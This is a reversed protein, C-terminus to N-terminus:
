IAKTTHPPPLQLPHNLLLDFARDASEDIWGPTRRESAIMLEACRALEAWPASYEIWAPMEPSSEALVPVGNSVLHLSRLQPFIGDEYYRMDLALKARALITDREAGYVGAGDGFNYVRLGRVKCEELVVARRANPYGCFVVDIDREAPPRREFRRMSSHWGVPVHVAGLEPPYRELNRLSADWIAGGAEVHARWREPQVQEPVNELNYIVSGRPVTWAADNAKSRTLNDIQHKANFVIARWELPAPTRRLELERVAADIEEFCHGYWPTGKGLIM